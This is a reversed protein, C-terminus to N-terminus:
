ISTMRIDAGDKVMRVYKFEDRIFTTVSGISVKVGPYLENRVSVSGANKKEVMRELEEYRMKGQRQKNSLVIKNRVASVYMDQKDAELKGTTEKRKNLLHIIQELKHLENEMKPLSRRLEVYAELMTPDIGVEVTTVTGMHSGLIKAEVSDGARIAGGSIMGKKGEVIVKGKCNVTSHLIAESHVNGGAIVEANEIYRAQLNGGAEVHSKGMGQIGAHLTINGESIIEAGEVVGMVEIDGKAKVSFGTLVNGRIIVSGDFEVNGTSPGVNNPAEYVNNVWVRGEFMKVLGDCAAYLETKDDSILINKGYRLKVIKPMRPALSDGYVNMGEVGQTVPELRALLQGEKVKAIMNLKKYNVNGREDVDPKSTNKTKFKYDVVAPKGDVAHIGEAIVYSVDYDREIELAMILEENIGNIVGRGKLKMMIDDTSYPAYSPYFTIKAMMKNETVSIRFSEEGSGTKGLAYSAVKVLIHDFENEMLGPLEALDFNQIGANKLGQTMAEMTVDSGGPQAEYVELYVGDLEKKVEFYGDYTNNGM